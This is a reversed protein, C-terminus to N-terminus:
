ASVDHGGTMLVGDEDSAPHHVAQDLARKLLYRAQQFPDRDDSEALSQLCRYESPSLVIPVIKKPM